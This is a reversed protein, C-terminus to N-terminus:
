EVIRTYTYVIPEQVQNFPPPVYWIKVVGSKANAGGIPTPTQNTSVRTLAGVRVDLEGVCGNIDEM